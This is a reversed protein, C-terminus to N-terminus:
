SLNCSKETMMMPKVLNEIDVTEKMVCSSEPISQRYFVNRQGITTIANLWSNVAM